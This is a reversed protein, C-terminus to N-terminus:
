GPGPAGTYVTFDYTGSLHYAAVNWLVIEWGQGDLAGLNPTGFDGGSVNTCGASDGPYCWLPAMPGGRTYATWAAPTWIGVYVDCAGSRAFPEACAGGAHFSGNQYWSWSVINFSGDVYVPASSSPVPPVLVEVSQNVGGALDGEYNAQDWVNAFSPDAGSGGPPWPGIESFVLSVLIVSLAVVGAVAVLLRTTRM